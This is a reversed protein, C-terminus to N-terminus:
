DTIELEEVELKPFIMDHEYIFEILDHAAMSNDFTYILRREETGDASPNYIFVQYFMGKMGKM